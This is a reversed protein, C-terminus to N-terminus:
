HMEATHIGRYPCRLHDPHMNFIGRSWKIIKERDLELHGDPTLHGVTNIPDHLATTCRAIRGDARIIHSNIRSAHCIPTPSWFRKNTVLTSRLQEVVENGNALSESACFSAGDGGLNNIPKLFLRFREDDALETEIKEILEHIRGVNRRMLHIRLLVAFEESRAHMAVLNDWIRDFSSAGGAQIRTEDHIDKPGDLTIQYHTLGLGILDDFVRPTLLYGNTTIGSSFSVKTRGAQLQELVFGNVRQITSFGLLPEGGFWDVNLHSLTPLSRGIYALLADLVAPKMRSGLHNEYCYKCRFNCKETPFLILKLARTNTAGFLIEEQSCEYSGRNLGCLGLSCDVQGSPNGPRIM